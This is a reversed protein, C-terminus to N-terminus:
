VANAEAIFEKQLDPDEIAVARIAKARPLGAQIKAGVLENWRATASQGGKGGSRSSAARVGSKAKAATKEEETLTGEEAKAKAEAEKKMEEEIQARAASEQDKKEFEELQAKAKALQEQTEELAKALSEEYENRAADLDLKRELCRVLTEASANPLAKKLEDFSAAMHDGKARAPGAPPNSFRRADFTAAVTLPATLTDFFGAEVAQKGTMWTEVAMLSKCEDPTKGSKKAYIGALQDRMGDLLTAMDRLQDGDGSAENNPNHVMFWANEAIERRNGAMAVVSAISLAMGDVVVTKEAQYQDLLNYIALGDIVNGGQSNLRITVPQGAAEALFDRVAQPGIGTAADIDQYIAFEPM